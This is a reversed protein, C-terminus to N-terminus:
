PKEPPRLRFADAFRQAADPAKRAATEGAPRSYVLSIITVRREAYLRAIEGVLADEEASRAGYSFTESSAKILGKQVLPIVQQRAGAPDVRLEAAIEESSWERQPQSRLLLLAELQMISDVARWLFQQVVNAIEQAM